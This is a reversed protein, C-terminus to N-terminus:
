GNLYVSNATFSAAPIPFISIRSQNRFPINNKASYDLFWSLVNIKGSKAASNVVTNIHCLLVRKVIYYHIWYDIIVIYGNESARELDCKDKQYEYIKRFLQLNYENHYDYNVFINEDVKDVNYLCLMRYPELKYFYNRLETCTQTLVILENFPAIDNIIVHQIFQPWVRILELFLMTTTKKYQLVHYFDLILYKLKYLPLYEFNM